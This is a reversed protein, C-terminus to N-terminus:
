LEPLMKLDWSIYKAKFKISVVKCLVREYNKIDKLRLFYNQSLFHFLGERCKEIVIYIFYSYLKEEMFSCYFEFLRGVSM